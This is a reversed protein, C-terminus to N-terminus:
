ADQVMDDVQRVERPIADSIVSLLHIFKLLRGTIIHNQEQGAREEKVDSHVYKNDGSFQTVRALQLPTPSHGKFRASLLEIQVVILRRLDRELYKRLLILVVISDTLPGHCSAM